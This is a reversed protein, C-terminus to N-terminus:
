EIRGLPAQNEWGLAGGQPNLSTICNNKPGVAWRNPLVTPGNPRFM